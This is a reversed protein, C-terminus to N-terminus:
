LGQELRRQSFLSDELNQNLRINQQRLITQHVVEKGFRRQAKIESPFWVGEIQQLDKFQFSTSM